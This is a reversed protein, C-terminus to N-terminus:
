ERSASVRIPFACSDLEYKQSVFYVRALPYLVRWLVLPYLVRM